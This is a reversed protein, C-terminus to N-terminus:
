KVDKALDTLIGCLLRVCPEISATLCYEDVSHDKAGHPGMGDFCPTGTAAMHNADSLGGRLQDAFPIGLANAVKYWRAIFVEQEPTRSWGPTATLQLIKKHVPNVEKGEKDWGTIYTKAVIEEIGKQVRGSEEPLLYRSEMQLKASPAVVNPVGHLKDGVPTGGEVAGVNLSTGKEKDLLGTLAVITEAMEHIASAASNNLMFGAHGGTGTFEIDCQLRGKRAFCHLEGEGEASEMVFVTRARRALDDLMEKSYGSGIEEDPNYAMCISLKDLTEKPLNMATHLMALDGNKMDAVGPGYCAKEDMRFPRQAATGDAFVTDTHGVFLADFREAGPKNTAVLLPGTKDGLNHRVCHWGLEEYWKQLHDVVQTIGAPSYSGSDINVLTELQKLYLDLDM